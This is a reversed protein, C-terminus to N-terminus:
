VQQEYHEKGMEAKMVIDQFSNLFAVKPSQSHESPSPSRQKEWSVPPWGSVDTGTAELSIIIPALKITLKETDREEEALPTVTKLVEVGPSLM